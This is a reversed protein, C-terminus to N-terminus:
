VALLTLLFVIEMMYVHVSVCVCVSVCLCVCVCVCMRQCDICRLGVVHAVHLHLASVEVKQFTESDLLTMQQALEEAKFDTFALGKRIAVNLLCTSPPLPSTSEHM